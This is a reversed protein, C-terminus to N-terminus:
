GYTFYVRVGVSGTKTKAHAKAYSVPSVMEGRKQKGGRIREGRTRRSGDFAGQFGREFGYPLTVYRSHFAEEAKTRKKGEDSALRMSGRSDSLLGEMVQKRRSIADVQNPVDELYMALGNAVGYSIPKTRAMGLLHVRLRGTVRGADERKEERKEMRSSGERPPKVISRRLDWAVGMGVRSLGRDLAMWLDEEVKAEEERVEQSEEIAEAEVKEKRKGEGKEIGKGEVGRAGKAEGIKYREVVVERRDSYRILQVPRLERYTGSWGRWASSDVGVGVVERVKKVLRARERSGKVSSTYGTRSWGGRHHGLGAKSEMGPLVGKATNRNIVYSVNLRHARADVKNGM